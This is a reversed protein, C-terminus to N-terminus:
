AGHYRIGIAREVDLVFIVGSDPLLLDGLIHSTIDILPDILASEVVALIITSSEEVDSIMHAMASAMSVVMRPLEFEGQRTAQQLKHLGHSRIITVGPANLTQWAEAVELGKEIHGTILMILKMALDRRDRQNLATTVEVSVGM